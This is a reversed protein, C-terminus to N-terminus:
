LSSITLFESHISRCKRFNQTRLPTSSTPGGTM